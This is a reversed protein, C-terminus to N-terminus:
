QEWAGMLGALIWPDLGTTIAPAEQRMWLDPQCAMEPVSWQGQQRHQGSSCREAAAAEAEMSLRGQCCCGAVQQELRSAKRGPVLMPM